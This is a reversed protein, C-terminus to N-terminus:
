VGQQVRSRPHGRRRESDLPLGLCRRFVCDCPLGVSPRPSTPHPPIRHGLRWCRYRWHQPERLPRRALHPPPRAGAPRRGGPRGNTCLAARRSRRCGHVHHTDHFEIMRHLGFSFLPPPPYTLHTDPSASTEFDVHGISGRVCLGRPMIHFNQPWAATTGQQPARVAPSMGGRSQRQLCRFNQQGDSKDARSSVRQPRGRDYRVPGGTFTYVLAVQAGVKPM